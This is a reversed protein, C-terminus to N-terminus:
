IDLKRVSAAKIGTSARRRCEAYFERDEFVCGCKVKFENRLDAMEGAQDQHFYDIISRGGIQEGILTLVWNAGRGRSLRCVILSERDFLGSLSYHGLSFNDQLVQMFAAQVHRFTGTFCNITVVIALVASSVSDLDITISEDIGDGEGTRNDGSHLVSSCSTATNNFYVFDHYIFNRGYLCAGVDMDHHEEDGEVPDWGLGLVVKGSLTLQQGSGPSVVHSDAPYERHAHAHSHTHPHPQSHPNPQGNVVSGLHQPLGVPSAMALVPVMTAVAASAASAAPQEEADASSLVGQVVPVPPEIVLNTQNAQTSTKFKKLEVKLKKKQLAGNVGLEAMVEDFEDGEVDLDTLVAADIGNERCKQAIDSYAASSGLGECHSSVQEV